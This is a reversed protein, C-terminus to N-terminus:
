GFRWSSIARRDQCNSRSLGRAFLVLGPQLSYCRLAWSSEGVETMFTALPTIGAGDKSQQDTLRVWKVRQVYVDM